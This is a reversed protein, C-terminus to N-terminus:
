FYSPAKGWSGSSCYSRIKPLGVYTSHSQSTSQSIARKEHTEIGSSFTFIVTVDEIHQGCANQVCSDVESLSVKGATVQRQLVLGRMWRPRVGTIRRAIVHHYAYPMELDLRGTGDSM